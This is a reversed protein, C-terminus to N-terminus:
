QGIMLLRNVKGFPFSFNGFNYTLNEVSRFKGMLMYTFMENQNYQQNVNM